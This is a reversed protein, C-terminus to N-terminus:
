HEGKKNNETWGDVWEKRRRWVAGWLYNQKDLGSGQHKPPRIFVSAISRFLVMALFARRGYAIWLPHWHSKIVTIQGKLVKVLKDESSPESGGGHHIISATPTIRPRAGLKRARLCLDVEDGYMFFNPDFGKLQNWLEKNILLFCGVIIDVEIASELNDWKHISEPNFLKSNPFLWTLGIARCTVSWPTMDNWCTVNKQGDSFYARGGWIGSKPTTDAFKMIAEISRNLIVTDPNLLLLRQGKAEQAALNNARAFGLNDKSALIKVQPFDIAILSASNDTSANDVVIIEYELDKTETIVSRLCALTLDVTNYSVIIITVDLM